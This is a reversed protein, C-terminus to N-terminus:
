GQSVSAAPVASLKDPNNVIRIAAIRGEVLALSMVSLPRGDAYRAVIGPEGNVMVLTATWGAPALQAIRLLFPAVLDAGRLPHRVSPVKGGGDAVLEVDEALLALLRPLDGETCASLFEAALRNGDEIAAQFRPQGGGIRERARRLMQRCATESKGVLASIEAHAYGFVDHLLLVAREVPSLRELLILFAMSLSETLEAAEVADPGPVQILPEPLWPGIYTERQRRASRLQDLCLRTVVTVLWGKPAAIHEGRARAHEWRLYAEQVADEADTVSGLMRYAIGFLRPRYREGDYTATLGMPLPQETM